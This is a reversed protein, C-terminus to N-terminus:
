KDDLYPQAGSPGYANVNLLYANKQDDRELLRFRFKVPIRKSWWTSDPLWWNMTTDTNSLVLQNTTIGTSDPTGVGHYLQMALQTSDNGSLNYKRFNVAIDGNIDRLYVWKTLITDATTGSAFVRVGTLGPEASIIFTSDNLSDTILAGTAINHVKQAFVHVPLCILLILWLRKM